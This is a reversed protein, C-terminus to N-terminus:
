AQREVAIFRVVRNREDINLVADIDLDRGDWVIRMDPTIRSVSSDHRAEVEYSTEGRVSDSGDRETGAQPSVRAWCTCHTAWSENIGGYASQSTTLSEITILHRFQGARAM